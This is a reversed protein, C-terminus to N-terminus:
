SQDGAQESKSGGGGNKNFLVLAANRTEHRLHSRVKLETKIEDACNIAWTKLEVMDQNNTAIQTDQNNKQLNLALKDFVEIHENHSGQGLKDGGTSGGSDRVKRAKSGEEGSGAGPAAEEVAEGQKRRRRAAAGQLSRFCFFLSRIIDVDQSSGDAEALAQERAILSAEYYTQNIIALFINTLIFIFLLNFPFFYIVTMTPNVSSLKYFNFEGLTIQFNMSLSGKLTDYGAYHTGFSLYSMGVFGFILVLFIL